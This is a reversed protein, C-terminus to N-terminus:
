ADDERGKLQREIAADFGQTDWIYSTCTAAQQRWTGCTNADYIGDKCKADIAKRLSM